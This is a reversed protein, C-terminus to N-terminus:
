QCMAKCIVVSMRLELYVRLDSPTLFELVWLHVTRGRGSDRGDALVQGVNSTKASESTQTQLYEKWKSFYM